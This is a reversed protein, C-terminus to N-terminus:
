RPPETAQAPGTRPMQNDAQVPTTKRSLIGAEYRFWEGRAAPAVVKTAALQPSIEARFREYLSLQSSCRVHMPILVRPRLERGAIQVGKWISARPDCAFGTAIPFFALDIAAEQKKLWEIEAEFAATSSDSWLAHDGAHYITIGDATVLFGVGEDTSGTTRVRLGGSSWDEHPSMVRATQGQIAVPSGLVYQIGPHKAAWEFVSPSYHDAHSHTVFVVVRRDGYSGGSLEVGPPLAEVGSVSGVSAVYDFILAHRPTLILWGSNQLYQIDAVAASASRDATGASAGAAALVAALLAGLLMM